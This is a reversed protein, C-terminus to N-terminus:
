GRHYRKILEREEGVANILPTKKRGTSKVNLAYELRRFMDPILEAIKIEMARVTLPERSTVKHELKAAYIMVRRFRGHLFSSYRNKIPVM